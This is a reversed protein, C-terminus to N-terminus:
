NDLQAWGTTRCGYFHDNEYKIAGRHDNDCASHNANNLQIDGNVHLKSKPAATGIGVNGGILVTLAEFTPTWISQRDDAHYRFLGGKFMAAKSFEFGSWYAGTNTSNLRIRNNDDAATHALELQRNPAATGLGVNGSSIVTLDDSSGSRRIVFNNSSNAGYFWNESNSTDAIKIGRYNGALGQISIVPGAASDFVNLKTSPATLGIGVNGSFYANGAAAYIAWNAASSGEARFYGAYNTTNGGQNGSLAAFYGGYNLVTQGALAGGGVISGYIAKSNVIGRVDLSSAPNTTGIGVNGDNITLGHKTGVAGVADVGYNWTYFDIANGAGWRSEHRTKITHAYNIGSDSFGFVIQNRSYPPYTVNGAELLLATDGGRIDLKAAPNTTGIGVNGLNVMNLGAANNGVGLTAALTDVVNGSGSGGITACSGVATIIGGSVTVGSPTKGAECILSAGLTGAKAYVGSVNINGGAVDLKHGPNVTGIGVRDDVFVKGNTYLGYFDAGLDYNVFTVQGYTNPTVTSGSQFQGTNHDSFTDTERGVVDAYETFGAGNYNRLIRYGDVADPSAQWSLNVSSREGEITGGPQVGQTSAYASSYYRVGNIDKYSYYRYDVTDGFSFGEGDDLIEVASANTPPSISSSNDSVIALRAAPSTTGIGVNGINNIVFKSVGGVQADILFQDGPNVIEEETRNILLDTNSVGDSWHQRYVPAIKLASVTQDTPSQGFIPAFLNANTKNFFTGAFKAGGAAELNGQNDIAFKSVGGVQADILFQNGLNQGMATETRNILLDTNNIGSSSTQSYEPAIELAVVSQGIGYQFFRPAFLNPRLIDEYFLGAFKIGGVVELKAQPNITGIGVNGYSVLGTAAINDANVYLPGGKIQLFPGKNVPEDCGSEGSICNPVAPPPNHLPATWAALLSQFSISLGLTLFIVILLYIFFKLNSKAM